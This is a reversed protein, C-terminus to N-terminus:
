GEKTKLQPFLIVERISPQNTLLMVLRDIGVGLGGTPPMGYELATVFDEQYHEAEEDGFQTRWEEQDTFRNAQEEPDNLETFANAMEMGAAFAEFREVLKENGPKRKALPTTEAPYDLLFTPQILGPEVFTSVLKDVLYAPSLTEELELGRAKIAERLKQADGELYEEIDIGCKQLVADRLTIRQWPPTFDLTNEGYSVKTTHFVEQAVHSVMEETLKMMDNYDAYAQYCEMMTFEPNHKTSIGENRFIRGIEYVQDFGGVILRKLYLETAIRLYLDQDLAQHHTIFPRARAGGAIPHLVPTEV